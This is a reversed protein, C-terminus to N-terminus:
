SVLAIRIGELRYEKGTTGSINGQQVYNQWGVNQVHTQYSCSVAGYDVTNSNSDILQFPNGFKEAYNKATSPDYGIIVTTQPLVGHATNTEPYDDCFEIVSSNFQITKLNICNDFAHAGIKTVSDPIIINRLSSCGSFTFGKIISLSDPISVSSLSNCEYFVDWGIYTVSDPISMSSLSSCRFFAFDEIRVVSGPISVSKLSTCDSFTGRGIYTVSDPITVSMLSTNDDFVFAGIRTVPNGGLTKPITINGGAGTYNTIEVGGNVIAYEYDGDVATAQLEESGVMNKENGGEAWILGPCLGAVMFSAFIFMAMTILKKRM